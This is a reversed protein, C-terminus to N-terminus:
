RPWARYGARHSAMTTSVASITPTRIAPPSGCGCRMRGRALRSGFPVLQFGLGGLVHGLAGNVVEQPCHYEHWRCWGLSLLDHTTWSVVVGTRSEPAHGAAVPLLCVGGLWYRPYHRSYHHLTFGNETLAWAISL